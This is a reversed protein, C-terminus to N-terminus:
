TRELINSSNKRLGTNRVITASFNWIWLTVIVPFHMQSDFFQIQENKNIDRLLFRGWTRIMVVGHLLFNVMEGLCHKKYKEWSPYLLFLCSSLSLFPYAPTITFPLFLSTCCFFTCSLFPFFISISICHVIKWILRGQNGSNPFLIVKVQVAWKAWNCPM